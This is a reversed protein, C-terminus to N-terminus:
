DKDEVVSQESHYGFLSKIKQIIRKYFLFCTAFIGVLGQVLLAGTGPDFYAEARNPIICILLLALLYM